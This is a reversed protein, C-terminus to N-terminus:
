LMKSANPHPELPSNQRRSYAAAPTRNGRHRRASAPTSPCRSRPGVDDLRRVDVVLEQVLLREAYQSSLAGSGSVASGSTCASIRGRTGSRVFQCESSSTTLPGDLGVLRQVTALLKGVDTKSLFEDVAPEADAEKRMDFASFLLIKTDPAVKKILPAAELGMVDGEISHDLIVLGPDLTRAAEIADAANTAEGCIEIRPDVRLIARIMRRMDEEDEVIVLVRAHDPMRRRTRGARRAAPPCLLLVRHAREARVLRRRRQEHALGKVISLGLGTGGVAKSKKKDLRSFKEFLNPVFDAPVGPGADRVRVVVAAGDRTIELGLGAATRIDERELPLEQDDPAVHDADAWAQM